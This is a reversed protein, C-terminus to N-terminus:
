TQYELKRIFLTFYILKSLNTIHYELLDTNGQPHKRLDFSVDGKMKQGFVKYTLSIDDKGIMCFIDCKLANKPFIM